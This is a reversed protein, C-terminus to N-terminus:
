FTRSWSSIFHNLRPAHESHMKTCCIVPSYSSFFVLYYPMVFLSFLHCKLNSIEKQKSPQSNRNKTRIEPVGMPPPIGIRNVIGFIGTPNKKLNQNKSLWFIPIGIQLKRFEPLKKCLFETCRKTALKYQSWLMYLSKLTTQWFM